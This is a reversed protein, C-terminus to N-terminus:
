FTLVSSKSLGNAGYHRGRVWTSKTNGRVRIKHKVSASRSMRYTYLPNFNYRRFCFRDTSVYGYVGASCWTRYMRWGRGWWRRKYNTTRATVYRGWPYTWHSVSWKIRRTRSRSTVRGTRRKWTRCKRFPWFSLSKKSKSNGGKSFFSKEVLNDKDDLKPNDGANFRVNEPLNDIDRLNGNDLKALTRFDGDNIEFYGDKTLKYITGDIMVENCANLLTREEDDGIFNNNPDDKDHMHKLYRAEAKLYAAESSSFRLNNDFDKLPKNRDYGIEQEIKDLEEDDVDRYRGVFAKEYKEVENELEKLTHKVTEMDDFVLIEGCRSSGRHKSIGLKKIKAYHIKSKMNYKFGPLPKVSKKPVPRSQLEEREGGLTDRASFAVAGLLAAILLMNPFKLM